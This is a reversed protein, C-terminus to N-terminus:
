AVASAIIDSILQDRSTHSTSLHYLHQHHDHDQERHDHDQEHHDHDQEGHAPQWKVSEHEDDVKVGFQRVVLARCLLAEKRREVVADVPQSHGVAKDVRDDIPEEVVADVPQGHGVAEDVRDYIPEEVVAEPYTISRIGM